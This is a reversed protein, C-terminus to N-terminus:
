ALAQANCEIHGRRHCYVRTPCRVGSVSGGCGLDLVLGKDALEAVKGGIATSAADCELWDRGGYYSGVRDYGVYKAGKNDDLNIGPDQTLQYIGDVKEFTYGCHSRTLLTTSNGCSLRQFMAQHGHVPILLNAM